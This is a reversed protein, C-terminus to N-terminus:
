TIIEPIAKELSKEFFFGNLSENFYQENSFGNTEFSTESETGTKISFNM